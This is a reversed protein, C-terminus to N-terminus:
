GFEGLHIAVAAWQTESVSGEWSNPSCVRLVSVSVLMVLFNPTSLISIYLSLVTSRAKILTDSSISRATYVGMQRGVSSMSSPCPCSHWVWRYFCVIRWQGGNIIEYKIKNLSPDSWSDWDQCLDWIYQHFRPVWVVASLWPQGPDHPNNGGWGVRGGGGEGGGGGRGRDLTWTHLAAAALLSWM